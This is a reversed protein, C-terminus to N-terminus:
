AGEGFQAPWQQAGHLVRLILIADGAVQYAAIYPTDTVVLERTDAVRGARGIEPHDALLSVAERIRGAVQRAAVPSDKGIHRRIHRLDSLADEEWIIQM